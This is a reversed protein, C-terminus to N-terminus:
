AQRLSLALRHAYIDQLRHLLHIADPDRALAARVETARRELEADLGDTPATPTATMAVSSAAAVERLAGQYERALADAALLLPANADSTAPTAAVQAAPLAAEPARPDPWMHWGVGAALVVAAAAAYGANRRGHRRRRGTGRGAHAHPPLPAAPAPTRPELSAAIAPWLDRAPAVDTRLGRLAGRLADPGPGEDQGPRDHNTTM